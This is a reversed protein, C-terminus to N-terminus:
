ILSSKSRTAGLIVKPATNTHGQPPKRSGGPKRQPASCSPVQLESGQLGVAAAAASEEKHQRPSAARHAHEQNAASRPPLQHNELIFKVTIGLRQHCKLAKVAPTSCSLTNISRTCSPCVSHILSSSHSPPPHWLASTHLLSLGSLCESNVLVSCASTKLLVRLALKLVTVHGSHPFSTM